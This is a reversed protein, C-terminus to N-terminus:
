IIKSMLLFLQNLSIDKKDLEKEEVLLRLEKKKEKKLITCLEKSNNKQFLPEKNHTRQCQIDLKLPKLEKSLVKSLNTMSQNIFLLEQDLLAVKVLTVLFSVLKIVPKMSIPM